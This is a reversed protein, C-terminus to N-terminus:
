AKGAITATITRATNSQLRVYRAGTTFDAGFNGTGTTFTATTYFNSNDQSVQYSLTTNGSSNGFVTIHSVYQCDIVNSTGGAGVAVANWANAHTGNVQIIPATNPSIAVVLAQDAAVAATSAAKVTATNTGDNIKTTQSGLTTQNASTAAGTPLPLSAASIAVAGQDSAIVVPVSNASTKSGVTPATSGLWAGVNADLRGGVLAAPLQTTDVTLSGANDTVPIASQDSALVVPTSNASTKQGLTNIRATFTADALRTALTAETAAGTPLPLSAASIPQTTTGTPDVRLPDSATGAEVTGGSASKRLIAGLVYQTGAGTDGDFVRVAQLNTGDSGGIETSSTPIAANNTGVSANSTTITNNPSIAVVLAPDTALAATSAAKVAATNAGDTIKEFIARGVADGTPLTNTGDTVRVPWYGALAAATGQNSTVTGDVTLSGANDSVPIVPQDSALVVRQTGTSSAGINTDTPKGSVKFLDIKATSVVSTIETTSDSANVQGSIAILSDVVLGALTDSQSNFEVGVALYTIASLDWGNGVSANSTGVSTRYVQWVGASADATPLSWSNYNTSDTGLRIIANKTNALSPIYILLQIYQAGLALATMDIPSITKQILAYPTNDTGNVKDFTIAETGRVHNTTLAINAADNNFVTLGSTTEFPEIIVLAGPSVRLRGKDDINLTTYDGPTGSSVGVTDPQYVGLVAVGTDGSVAAADEAKGLNTAGVGPIVSSIDVTGDVTLSGANDTVPIASQDSALVVPTSNAMTKQGLTNIRATFTADALRTSLTAETAAGTPLPLSAASIPQTTTGTPDVRLPDSSTGAEVSGGSASKRLVAGLVYQTGGGTDADFVHASQLNTGDTGGVQTASGPVAANTASVSPNSFTGSVPIATGGAVGQVSLVGGAPTGAVGAGVVVPRGSSDVLLFRADTGDSGAALLAQTGVPIAVGDEVAMAVGNSDFLIVAPSKAM